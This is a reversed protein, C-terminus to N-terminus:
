FYLLLMNSVLMLHISYYYFEIATLRCKTWLVVKYSFMSGSIVTASSEFLFIYEAEKKRFITIALFKLKDSYM